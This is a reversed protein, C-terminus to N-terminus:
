IRGRQTRPFLKQLNYAIGVFIIRLLNLKIRWIMKYWQLRRHQCSLRTDFFLYYLQYFLSCPALLLTTAFVKRRTRVFSSTYNTSVYSKYRERMIKYDHARIPFFLFPFKELSFLFLHNEGARCRRRSTDRIEVFNLRTRRFLIWKLQFVFRCTQTSTRARTYEASFEKGNNGTIDVFNASSELQM